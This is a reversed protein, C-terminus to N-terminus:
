AASLRSRGRFHPLYDASVPVVLVDCAFIANLSLVGLLPCCDIVVPGPAADPAKLAVRL